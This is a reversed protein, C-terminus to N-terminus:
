EVPTQFKQNFHSQNVFDAAEIAINTAQHWILPMRSAKHDTVSACLNNGKVVRNELGCQCVRYLLVM